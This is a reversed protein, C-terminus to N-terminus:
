TGPGKEPLPYGLRQYWTRERPISLPVQVTTHPLLKYVAEHYRQSTLRGRILKSLSEVSLLDVSHPGKINMQSRVMWPIVELVVPM